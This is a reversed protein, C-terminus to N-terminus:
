HLLQGDAPFVFCGTSDRRASATFIRHTATNQTPQVQVQTHTHNLAEAAAVEGLLEIPSAPVLADIGDAADLPSESPEGRPLQTVAEQVRSFELVPLGFLSSISSFRASCM